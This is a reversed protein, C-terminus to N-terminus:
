VAVMVAVKLSVDVVNALAAVDTLPPLRDAHDPEPVVYVAVNVGVAADDPVADIADAPPAHVSRRPLGDSAAVASVM